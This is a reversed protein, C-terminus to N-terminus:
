VRSELLGTLSSLTRVLLSFSKFPLNFQSIPPLPFPLLSFPVVLRTLVLVVLRLFRVNGEVSTYFQAQKWDICCGAEDGGLFVYM